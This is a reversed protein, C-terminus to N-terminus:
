RPVGPLRRHWARRQDHPGRDGDGHGNSKCQSCRGCHRNQDGDGHRRPDQNADSYGHASSFQNFHADTHWYRHSRTHADQDGNSHCIANGNPDARTDNDADPTKNTHTDADGDGAAAIEGGSRLAVRQAFHVSCRSCDALTQLPPEDRDGQGLAVPGRRPHIQLLWFTHGAVHM